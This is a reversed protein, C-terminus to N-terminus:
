VGTSGFGGKRDTTHGPRDNVEISRIQINEFLEGQAIRDGHNIRFPVNTTNWVPIFVEEKYDSDIIGEANIITLGHKWCLGSRPHIRVSMEPEIDFILGTPILARSYPPVNFSVDPHDSHWTIDQEAEHLGNNSDMVRITKFEPIKDEGTLPGRLHAHLDFCASHDTQAKPSIVNTYMKYFKLEM